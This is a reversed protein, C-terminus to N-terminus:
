RSQGGPGARRVLLGVAVAPLAGVVCAFVFTWEDPRAVGAVLTSGTAMVTTVIAAALVSGVVRALANVANVAATQAIDVHRLIM